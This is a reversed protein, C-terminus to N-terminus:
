ADPALLGNQEVKWPLHIEHKEPRDYIPSWNDYQPFLRVPALRSPLTEALAGTDCPIGMHESAADIIRGTRQRVPVQYALSQEAVAEADLEEQLILLCAADCARDVAPGTKAAQVLDLLTTERSSYIVRVGDPLWGEPGIRAHKQKSGISSNYIYRVAPARHSGGGDNVRAEQIGHKTRATSVVSTCASRHHAMGWREAATEHGIYYAHGLHAMMDHLYWTLPPLAYRKTESDAAQHEVPTPVWGGPCVNTIEGRESPRHLSGYLSEPRVGLLDCLEDSTAFYRNQEVLHDRLDAPKVTAAM